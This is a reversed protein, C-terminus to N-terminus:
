ATLSYPEKATNEIIPVVLEDLFRLNKKTTVIRSCKLLESVRSLVSQSRERM